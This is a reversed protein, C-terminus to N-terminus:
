LMLAGALWITTPEPSSSFGFSTNVASCSFRQSAAFALSLVTINRESASIFSGDERGLLALSVHFNLHRLVRSTAQADDLAKIQSAARMLRGLPLFAM